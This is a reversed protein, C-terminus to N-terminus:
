GAINKKPLIAQSAHRLLKVTRIRYVPAQKPTDPIPSDILEGELFLLDGIQFPALAEIPSLLIIGGLRDDRPAPAFRLCMKGKDNQFLAGILWRFDEAHGFLDDAPLEKLRSVPDAKLPPKNSSQFTVDADAAAPQQVQAWTSEDAITLIAPEKHAVWVDASDKSKGVVPKSCQLLPDPPYSRSQSTQECGTALLSGVLVIM